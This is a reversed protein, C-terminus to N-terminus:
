ERCETTWLGKNILVAPGATRFLGDTNHSLWVIIIFRYSSKLPLQVYMLKRRTSNKKKVESTLLLGSYNFAYLLLSLKCIARSM